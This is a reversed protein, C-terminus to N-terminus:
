RRAEVDGAAAMLATAILLHEAATRDTRWNPWPYIGPAGLRYSTPLKGALGHAIAASILEDVRPEDDGPLYDLDKVQRIREVLAAEATPSLVQEGDILTSDLADRIEEHLEDTVFEGGDLYGGEYLDRIIQLPNLEAGCDCPGNPYAPMNHRACDSKHQHHTM